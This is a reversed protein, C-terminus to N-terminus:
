ILFLNKIATIVMDVWVTGMFFANLRFAISLLTDFYKRLGNTFIKEQIIFLASMIGYNAVLVWVLMLLGQWWMFQNGIIISVSVSWAGVMFPLALQQAMEDLTSKM